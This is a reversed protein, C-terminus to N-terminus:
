GGVPAGVPVPGHVDEGLARSGNDTQGLEILGAHVMKAMEVDCYKIFALADPTSGTIGMLSAPLGAAPGDGVPRGGADFEGDAAGQVVQAQSAGPPAM